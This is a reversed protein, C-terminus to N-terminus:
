LWGTFTFIFVDKLSRGDISISSNVWHASSRWIAFPPFFHAPSSLAHAPPSSLPSWSYDTAEAANERKRVYKKEWQSDHERYSDASFSCNHFFLSLCFLIQRIQPNLVVPLFSEHWHVKSFRIIKRKEHGNERTERKQIHTHLNKDIQKRNQAIM